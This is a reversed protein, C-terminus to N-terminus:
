ERAAREERAQQRAAKKLRVREDRVDGATCRTPTAERLDYCNWGFGLPWYAIALPAPPPWFLSAVRFGAPVTGSRIEQGDKKVVYPIGKSAAWGFPRAGVKGTGYAREKQNFYVQSGEPVIVRTRTSCGQTTVAMVAAAVVMCLQKIM